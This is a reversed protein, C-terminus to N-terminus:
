LLSPSVVMPFLEVQTVFLEYLMEGVLARHIHPSVVLCSRLLYLMMWDVDPAGVEETVVWIMLIRIGV